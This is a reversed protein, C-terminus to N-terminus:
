PVCAGRATACRLAPEGVRHGLRDPQQGSVHRDAATEAVGQLAQAVVQRVLDLLVRAPAPQPQEKGRDAFTGPEAPM